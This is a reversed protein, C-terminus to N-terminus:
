TPFVTDHFIFFHIIKGSDRNTLELGTKNDYNKFIATM